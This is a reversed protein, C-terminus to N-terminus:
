GFVLLLVGITLFLIFTLFKALPIQRRLSGAVRESSFISAAFGIVLLPILFAINYILLCGIAIARLSTSAVLTITPLYIQGTCAFELISVVLGTVIGSAWFLGTRKIEIHILRKLFRPLQLKIEGERRKKALIFDYFSFAALVFALAAFIRTLITRLVPNGLLSGLIKYAGLGISFYSIFIGLGFALTLKIIDGRRRGLYALYAVFFILTAFACPNIGDILGAIIIPLISLKRFRTIIRDRAYDFYDQPVRGILISDGPFKKILDKVRQYRIEEEILYTSDIFITPAILRKEEPVGLWESVAEAAIKASDEKIDIMTIRVLPFESSLATLLSAIRQCEPCGTETVYVIETKPKPKVPTIQVGKVLLPLKENIEDNGYLASGKFFVIPIEDGFTGHREEFEELLLYNEPKIIDYAIVKAKGARKIDEVIGYFTDYCHGCDSSYFFFLKPLLFLLIVMSSEVERSKDTLMLFETWEWFVSIRRGRHAKSMGCDRM